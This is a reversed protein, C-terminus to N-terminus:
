FNHSSFITRTYPHAPLIGSTEYATAVTIEGPAQPPTCAQLATVLGILFASKSVMRLCQKMDMEVNM